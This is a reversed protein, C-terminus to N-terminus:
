VGRGPSPLLLDEPDTPIGMMSLQRALSVATAAPRAGEGLLECLVGALATPDVSWHRMAVGFVDWVVLEGRFLAFLDQLCLEFGFPWESLVDAAPSLEVPLFRSEALDLAQWIGAGDPRCILHVLLRKPGLWRGDHHHCELLVRGFPHALLAPVLRDLESLVTEVAFPVEEAPLFPLVSSLPLGGNPAVRGRMAQLAKQDVRVVASSSEKIDVGGSTARIRLSAGPIPGFVKRGPALTRALEELARHDDFWYPVGLEHTDVFGGGCLVVAPSGPVGALYDVCLDRLLELGLFAEHPDRALLDRASGHVGPPPIQTNNSVVVVDPAPLRGDHMGDITLDSIVTDVGMLVCVDGHTTKARLLVQAV